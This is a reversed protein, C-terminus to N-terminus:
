SQNLTVAKVIMRAKKWKGLLRIKKNIIMYDFWRCIFRSFTIISVPTYDYNKCYAEYIIYATRSPMNAIVDDQDMKEVVVYLKMDKMMPDPCKDTTGYRRALYHVFNDLRQENM